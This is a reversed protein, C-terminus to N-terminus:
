QAVQNSRTELPQLPFLFFLYMWWWPNIIGGADLLIWTGMHFLVGIPLVLYKAKPVFPIVIFSCQFIIVALSLAKCVFPFNSLAIGLPTNHIILHQQLNNFAIWDWGSMFIKEMGGYFYSLCILLQILVIGWAKMQSTKSTKLEVLVFPYVLLAYTLTTYGHDYKNFGALLLQYVLFSSVALLASMWKYPFCIVAVSSGILIIYVCQLALMSPFTPLLIKGIGVANYFAKFYNLDKFENMGDYVVILLCIYLLPTVYRNINSSAISVDFLKHWRNNLAEKFNTWYAIFLLLMNLVIANRWLLQKSKIVFFYEDFRWKETQLRPYIANISKTWFNSDPNANLIEHTIQPISNSIFWYLLWLLFSAALFFITRITHQKSM